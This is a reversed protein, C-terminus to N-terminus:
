KRPSRIPRTKLAERYRGSTKLAAFAPHSAKSSMGRPQQHRKNSLFGLRLILASPRRAM